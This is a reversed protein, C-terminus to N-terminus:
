TSNVEIPNTLTKKQTKRKEKDQYTNDSLILDNADMEKKDCFTRSLYQWFYYILEAYVTSM